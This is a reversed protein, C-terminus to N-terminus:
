HLGLWGLVTAPLIFVLAYLFLPAGRDGSQVAYLVWGILQALDAAVVTWWAWTQGQRLGFWVVGLQFIGFALWLACGLDVIYVAPQPNHLKRHLFPIVVSVIVNLGGYGLFLAVSIGLPSLWRFDFAPLANM